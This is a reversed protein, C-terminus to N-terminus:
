IRRPQSLGDENANQAFINGWHQGLLPKNATQDLRAGEWFSM